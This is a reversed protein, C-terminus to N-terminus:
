RRARTWQLPHLHRPLDLGPTLAGMAQTYMRRYPSPVYDRDWPKVIGLFHLIGIDSLKTMGHRSVVRGGVSVALSRPVPVNWREDLPLWGGALV